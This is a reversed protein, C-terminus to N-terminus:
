EIQQIEGKNVTLIFPIKNPKGEFDFSTLGSIGDFRTVDMLRDKMQRHSYVEKDQLVQICLDTADYAQAEL